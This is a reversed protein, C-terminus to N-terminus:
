QACPMEARIRTGRGAPSWVRLRGGLAEVRDALGRIGSGRETDAGGVGNDVVEVVVDNGTRIVNVSATTAQAHKGINALSEAVVYYAAAEVPDPLRGDVAVTLVVPVPARAAVQELAVALGHASLVAPHLGSAIDRLEDLSRAVERQAEELQGLAAPNDALQRELMKLDLSLAVLRQQAGDHLNRELRKRETQGAEIVRARSGKVEELRAALEAQLRANELAIAAAAGVADLLEPEDDLGPDHILAAVPAGDREILTTSRGDISPVDQPRGDLDTYNEFHPLWYALTLHPDGLARSLADRLERPALDGRLEIVLDGVASRALRASLLAFMFVIPSIGIVVFTARQATQFVPERLVAALFMGAIMLLGVAFSDVLLAVPRRLPRGATRRRAALVGIGILCTASISLLQVQEVTDAVDPRNAIRFLNDRGSDGLSLKVVQLGIASVFAAAVLAWEFRSRLHGDPFALFVCLFIAAPVIDLIAGITYFAESNASSLGTLAIVFGGVVMLLGIRSDPRRWWAILGAILYPVSIWELLAVQVDSADRSRLVGFYVALAAGVVAVSWLLLPPPAARTMGQEASIREAPAVAM